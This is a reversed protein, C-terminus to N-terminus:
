NQEQRIKRWKAANNNHESLTKAFAHGGSGDAVFYFYEHEEPNLAAAISAKGPNAIPGPPLGPYLYTNYPSDFELDKKLLRRGLPGQGGNEHRGQTLAYIVTPDTQLAMGKKLRNFFVGAVRQRESPVSTEKEIISALTLVELVTKLPAKANPCDEPLFDAFSANAVRELLIGCLPLLTNEMAKNMQTMIDFATDGKQYSYTEPLYSGEPLMLFEEGKSFDENATLLEKIEWNTLGERITVQRLIVKGSELLDLIKRMSARAPIEYEGAKLKSAQGTMRGSIKFVIPQDIVNHYSLQDAIGGISSGTPITIHVAKDHPGDEIFKMWGWYSAGCIGMVILTSVLVFGGLLLKFFFKM